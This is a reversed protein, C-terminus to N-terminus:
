KKYNWEDSMYREVALENVYAEQEESLEFPVLEIGLGEEFGNYFAQIAEEFTVPKSRLANIAVAKKRFGRQMRERIRDNKFKFCDFLKDEDIDLLISGHQLIVGKQRTQASGAVKRGEVVLEYYSPSDFCVGSRPSRLEAKEQETQPIAFYADLGLEVFGLRLGESIVRYAETVTKPMNPYDENVIVSYTVEKDHLVARGGTPRRVFGLNYKEVSTLDIDRDVQQFYGVSLTAPDWGYFRIVPPIEGESHWKLLAEDLAMNYAPSRDGSSIFAWQKM